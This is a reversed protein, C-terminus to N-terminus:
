AKRRRRLGFAGLLGAGLLSLTLPEPVGPPGRDPTTNSFAFILDNYDFDHQTDSYTHDEWGVFTVNPLGALAAAAAAPLSGVGFDSYDTTIWAHYVGYSDPNVTDFTNGTSTDDLVFTLLGSRTGLSMTNGASNAACTGSIAKNCFIPNVAPATSLSLISADDAAAFVYVATVNGGLATIVPPPSTIPTAQAAATLALATAVGLFISKNM